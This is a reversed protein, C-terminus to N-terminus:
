WGWVAASRSWTSTVPRGRLQVTDDRPTWLEHNGPTWIVKAFRGALLALVWEVDRVYEGIDGAILLWDGDGAPRLGEVIERNEAYGIHLDSIAVLRRSGSM